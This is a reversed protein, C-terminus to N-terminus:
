FKQSNVGLEKSWAIQKENRKRVPKLETVLEQTEM